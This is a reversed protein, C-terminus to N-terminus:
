RWFSDNSPKPKPPPAFPSAPGHLNGEALLVDRLKVYFARREGFAGLLIPIFILAGLIGWGSGTTLVAKISAAAGVACSCGLWHALRYRRRLKRLYPNM